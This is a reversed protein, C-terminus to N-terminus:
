AVGDLRDATDLLYEVARDFLPIEELFRARGSDRLRMFLGVGLVSQPRDEGLNLVVRGRSLDPWSLVARTMKGGLDIEIGVGRQLKALIAAEEDVSVPSPSQEPPPDGILRDVLELRTELERIAEELLQSDLQQPAPQHPAVAQLAELDLFQEFRDRFYALSPVTHPLDISRLAFKHADLLWSLLERAEGERGREVLGARLNGVLGPLLQRLQLRDAETLKPAVSWVLDPMTRWYRLARDPDHRAAHEIVRPWDHRLFTNLYDDLKIDGLAAGTMAVIRAFRLTRNEARDVAELAPEVQEQGARLEAAIFADLQDLMRPFVEVSGAESGLLEEVIRSIEVATREGTPDVQKLGVSISGIRNVLMRVPHNRSALLTPDALALKLVMFQLRGLQARVEAPVDTDRLIFEFLMAVIDITMQERSDRTQSALEERHELIVNRLHGDRLEGPEDGAHEVQLRAVALGLVLNEAAAASQDAGGPLIGSFLKRLVSGAREAGGLWSAKPAAHPAQWGAATGGPGFPVGAAVGGGFAAGPMAMGPLAGDGALGAGTVLQLLRDEPAAIPAGAFGGMGGAGDMGPLGAPIMGPSWGDDGAPATAAAGAAGHDAPIQGGVARAGGGLSRPRMQLQAAIGHKALLTNMAEYLTYAHGALGECLEEVLVAAQERSEVFEDVTNSICRSLLYPRFPNEREKVNEEGFLLAVRINLDRLQEEVEDRLYKTVSDIRLEDEFSSLSVLSLEGTAMAGSFSPRYNSYATQFSRDLLQEMHAVLEQRLTPLRRQLAARAELQVSSERMSRAFEAKKLLNAETHPLLTQIAHDFQALFTARAAGLLDNRDMM